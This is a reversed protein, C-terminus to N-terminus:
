SHGFIKDLVLLVGPTSIPIIHEVMDKFFEDFPAELPMSDQNICVNCLQTSPYMHMCTILAICWKKFNAAGDAKSIIFTRLINYYLNDITHGGDVSHMIMNTFQVSIPNEPEMNLLGDIGLDTAYKEINKL